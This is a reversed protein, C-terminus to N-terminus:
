FLCSELRSSLSVEAKVCLNVSERWPVSGEQELLVDINLLRVHHPSTIRAGKGGCMVVHQLAGHLPLGLGDLYSGRKLYPDDADRGSKDLGHSSRCSSACLSASSSALLSCSSCFSSFFLLSSCSSFARTLPLCARFRSCSTCTTGTSKSKEEQRQQFM